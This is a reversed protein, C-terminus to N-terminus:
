GMARQVQGVIDELLAELTAEPEPLAAVADYDIVVGTWSGRHWRAPAPLAIELWGPPEPYAYLYLYPRDFGASGPSFGLNIHPDAAEEFGHKFWVGSLDFGHPWVVLATQPGNLRARLRALATFLRFLAAAYDGALGSDLILPATGSINAPTPDAPHGAQHMAALVAAALTAQSHGILPITPGTGAPSTYAIHARTFDLDLAGGVPLPGTTLGTPTVRLPLHHYNPQPTAQFERIAGLVQAAQHLATRTSEWHALAPLPPM